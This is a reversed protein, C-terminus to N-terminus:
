TLLVSDAFARPSLQKPPQSCSGADHYLCRDLGDQGRASCGVHGAAGGRSVFGGGELGAVHGPVASAHLADLASTPMQDSPIGDDHQKHKYIHEEVSKLSCPVALSDREIAAAIAAADPEDLQQALADVMALFMQPPQPFTGIVLIAAQWLDLVQALPLWQSRCSAYM